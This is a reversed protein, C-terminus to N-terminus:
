DEYGFRDIIKDNCDFLTVDTTYPIGNLECFAVKKAFDVEQSLYEDCFFMYDFKETRVVFMVSMRKGNKM